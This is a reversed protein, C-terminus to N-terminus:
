NYINKVANIGAPELHSKLLPKQLQVGGGRM